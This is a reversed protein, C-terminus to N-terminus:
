VVEVYKRCIIVYSIINIEFNNDKTKNNKFMKEFINKSLELTYFINDKYTVKIIKINNTSCIYRFKENDQYCIEADIKFGIEKKIINTLKLAEIASNLYTRTLGGKGLLIGGFYRVVVILINSLKNKNIVNLLQMGATGSPEGDDSMKTFKKDNEIICFAFCVHRADKYKKRIETLKEEADKVAEINFIMTIFKSKKNIIENTVSNQITYIEDM